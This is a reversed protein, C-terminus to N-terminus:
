ITSKAEEDGGALQRYLRISRGAIPFIEGAGVWAETSVFGEELATDMMMEWQVEPEGPLKFDVDEWFANFCLFFTDDKILHGEFTTVGMHEGCLLVGLARVGPNEWDATEMELGDPKVWSIDKGAGKIAKGKVFRPRHFIPHERRLAILKGTFELLKEQSGNLKWSHWSMENDQCYVNNNGHQTRGWEDGGSLM